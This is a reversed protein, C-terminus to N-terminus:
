SLADIYVLPAFHRTTLDVVELSNCGTAYYYISRPIRKSFLGVAVQFM